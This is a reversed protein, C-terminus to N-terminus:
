SGKKPSFFSLIGKQRPISGPTDGKASPSRTPQAPARAGRIAGGASSSNGSRAAFGRQATAPTAASGSGGGSARDLFAQVGKLSQATLQTVPGAASLSARGAEGVAPVTTRQDTAQDPEQVGPADVFLITDEDDPSSLGLRQLTSARNAPLPVMGSGGCSGCVHMPQGAATGASPDGRGEPLALPMVPDRTPSQEAADADDLLGPLDAALIAAGRDPGATSLAGASNFSGRLNDELVGPRRDAGGGRSNLQDAAHVSDDAAALEADEGADDEDELVLRRQAHRMQTARGMAAEEDSAAGANVDPQAAEQASADSYRAQPVDAQRDSPGRQEEAEAANDAQEEESGAPHM